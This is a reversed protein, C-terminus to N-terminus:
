YGNGCENGINTVALQGKDDMCIGKVNGCMFFYYCYYYLFFFIQLYYVVSCSMIQYIDEDMRLLCLFSVSGVM